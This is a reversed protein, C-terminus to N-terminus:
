RNGRFRGSLEEAFHMADCMSGGNGCSFVRGGNCFTAAMLKGAEAIKAITKRDALLNDLGLEAETLADYIVNELDTEAKPEVGVYAQLSM